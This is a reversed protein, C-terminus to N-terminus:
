PCRWRTRVRTYRSTPLEGRAATGAGRSSPMRYRGPARRIGSGTHNVPCVVLYPGAEGALAVRTYLAEGLPKGTFTWVGPDRRLGDLGARARARLGKHEWAGVGTEGLYDMGAWVFDGILRPEKEALEAFRQADSCFTESGLILRHQYARLDHRYRDIGYNYGAVDMQAFADRTVRDCAPLAAGKKM